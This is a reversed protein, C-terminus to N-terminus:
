LWASHLASYSRCSCSFYENPFFRLCYEDILAHNTIARTVRACLLNSHGFHKIWPGGKIYSPVITNHKNDLLDLFYKEKLNSTLFLKQWNKIYSDCEEKKSFDWSTKCLYISTLNFKRTNYDVSAHLLWKDKSSCNWFKISNNSHKNFLSRLEKYITILQPQYSHISSDFIKQVM